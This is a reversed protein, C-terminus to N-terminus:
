EGTDSCATWRAAYRASASSARCTKPKDSAGNEPPAGALTVTAEKERGDFLYRIKLSQGDKSNELIRALDHPGSVPQGNAKIIVADIPIGATQAASGVAHSIVVAGSNTPLRLRRRLEDTVSSTRVGLRQGRTALEPNAGRLVLSDLLEGGGSKELPDSPEPILGLPATQAEPPPRRGLTVEITQPKDARVISLKLRSGVTSSKLVAVIDDISRIPRGDIATILDTLKLGALAAPSDPTIQVIRTGRGAESRDDTIVGLYGPETETRTEAPQADAGPLAAPGGIRQALAQVDCLIQCYSGLLLIVVFQAPKM